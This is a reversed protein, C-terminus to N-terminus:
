FAMSDEQLCTILNSLNGDIANCKQMLFTYSIHFLLFMVIGHCHCSRLARLVYLRAHQRQSFSCAAVCISVAANVTAIPKQQHLISKQLPRVWTLAVGAVQCGLIHPPFTELSSAITNPAGIGHACRCVKTRHASGHAVVLHSSGPHACTGPQVRVLKVLLNPGTFPSCRTLIAFFFVTSRVRTQIVAYSKM